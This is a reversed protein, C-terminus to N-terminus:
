TQDAALMGSLNLGSRSTRRMNRDSAGLITGSLGAISDWAMFLVANFALRSPNHTGCSCSLRWHWYTNVKAHGNELNNKNPLALGVVTTCQDFSRETRAWGVTSSFTLYITRYSNRQLCECACRRSNAVEKAIRFGQPMESM